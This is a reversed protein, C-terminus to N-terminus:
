KLITLLISIIAVILAVISLVISWKNTKIQSKLATLELIEKEQQKGLEQDLILGEEQSLLFKNEYGGQELFYDASDVYTMFKGQKTSDLRVLDDQEIEEIYHEITAPTASIINDNILVDLDISKSPQKQLHILIADKAKAEEITM